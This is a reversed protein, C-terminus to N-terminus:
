TGTACHPFEFNSVRHSVFVQDDLRIRRENDTLLEVAYTDESQAPDGNITKIVTREIGDMFTWTGSETQYGVFEGAVCKRFEEYFTGDAKFEILSMVGPEDPQFASYWIGVFTPEAIAPPAILMALVSLALVHRYKLAAGYPSATL